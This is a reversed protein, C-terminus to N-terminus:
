QQYHEMSCNTYSGTKKISEILIVHAEYHYAVMIYESGRSSCYQFQETQDTYVIGNESTEFVRYLVENTKINNQDSQPSAYNFM